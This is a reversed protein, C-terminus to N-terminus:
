SPNYLQGSQADLAASEYPEGAPSELKSLCIGDPTWDMYNQRRLECDLLAFAANDGANRAMELGSAMGRLKEILVPDTIGCIGRLFPGKEMVFIGQNLDHGKANDQGPFVPQLSDPRLM